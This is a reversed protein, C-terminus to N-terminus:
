LSDGLEGDAESEDIEFRDWQVATSHQCFWISTRYNLHTRIFSFLVTKIFCSHTPNLATANSRAV